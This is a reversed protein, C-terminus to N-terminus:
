SFGNDIEESGETDWSGVFTNGSKKMQARYDDRADLCEYRVNFNRMFRKEEESFAHDQFAKDWLNEAVKLDTGQRWPKFLVMMTRCYLERDGQDCRPLNAGVFNPVRKCNNVLYRIGHSDSLLHEAKFRM